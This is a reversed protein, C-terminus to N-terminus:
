SVDRRWNEIVNVQEEFVTKFSPRTMEQKEPEKSGGITTVEIGDALIVTNPRSTSRKLINTFNLSKINAFSSAIASRREQMSFLTKAKDYVVASFQDLEILDKLPANGTNVATQLHEAWKHLHAQIIDYIIVTDPYHMVRVTIGRRWKEFMMDINWQCRTEQNELQADIEPVGSVRMGFDRLQLQNMNALTNVKVWFYRDFLDDATYEKQEPLVEVRPVRGLDFKTPNSM